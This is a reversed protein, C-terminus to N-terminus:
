ETVIDFYSRRDPMNYKQLDLKEGAPKHRFDGKVEGLGALLSYIGVAVGEAIEDQRNILVDRDWKRDLYGLEIYASIANVLNPISWTSVYPKGPIKTKGNVGRLDLSNLIYKIIEYTAFYNDGGFNRFGDGRRYTEYISKEREWFNGEERFSMFDDSYRTYPKHDRASIHWGPPDSYIWSVMNYKYGNFDRYDTSYNKKLSYGTFYQSCDKLYALRYPISKSEKFWSKLIGYDNINGRGGKQLITFGKKLVNYPPVIIGNMGDYDPPASNALHLSVVLHPKFGNIKSIRGKEMERDAGAPPYDYLRYPANPDEEKGAQEFPISDDRSIMTEIYIRSVNRDTYKALIKRFQDFDGDPACMDMLLLVRKSISFVIDREYMGHLGAGEAFYDIYKGTVLDFKDGHKQKNDIFVGGHGPDIVVRYVPFEYQEIKEPTFALIAMLFFISAVKKKKNKLIFNM